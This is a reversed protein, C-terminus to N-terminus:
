RKAATFAAFGGAGVWSGIKSRLAYHINVDKSLVQFLKQTGFSPFYQPKALLELWGLCFVFM